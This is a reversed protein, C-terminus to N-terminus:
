PTTFKFESFLNVWNDESVAMLTFVYEKNAELRPEVNPDTINLVVNDLEYFTFNKELTYTGSILEGNTESIVQFYIVNEEILGDEWEFIPNVGNETVSARAPEVETPKVNTKLRIPTCKHFTGSTFYTVVGMREGDFDSNKFKWLYGNFLPESILDKEVYKSFDMSDAVSAAEFYRFDTAGEIPYFIVSTPEDADNFLGNVNGGACAIIDGEQLSANQEIYDQLNLGPSAQDDDNGCSFIALVFLIFYLKYM